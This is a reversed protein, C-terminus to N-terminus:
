AMIYRFNKTHGQVCIMIEMCAMKWLFYTETCRFVKHFTNFYAKFDGEYATIYRFFKAVETFSDDTNCMFNENSFISKEFSYYINIENQLLYTLM